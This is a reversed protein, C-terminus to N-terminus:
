SACCRCDTPITAPALALLYFAVVGIRSAQEYTLNGSRTAIAEQGLAAVRERVRPEGQRALAHILADLTADPQPRTFEAVLRDRAAPHDIAGLLRIGDDGAAAWAAPDALAEVLPLFAPGLDTEPGGAVYAGWRAFRFAQDRFAPASLAARIPTVVRRDRLAALGAVGCAADAVQASGALRLLEARGADGLPALTAAAEAPPRDAATCVVGRDPGAPQGAIVALTVRAAAM